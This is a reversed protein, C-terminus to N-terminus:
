GETEVIGHQEFYLRLSRISTVVVDCHDEVIPEPDYGIATGAVQLMPLDMAGDGVAITKGLAIGETLALEELAGDKGTDLLPGEVEGTVAGRALVLRNAVVHDVAVGARDLAAEVGRDFTGTVIAVQVGSRRLDAIMDAAGHHLKCRAFAADVRAEPMGELLRARGRLTDAFDVEGRRSREALGQMETAVGYERGLLVTLDSGTLTGDFDFAVLTM